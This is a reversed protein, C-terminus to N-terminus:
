NRRTLYLTLGVLKGVASGLLSWITIWLAMRSLSMAGAHWRWGYWLVSVPLVVALFRAGMACGCRDGAARWPSIGIRRPVHHKRKKRRRRHVLM